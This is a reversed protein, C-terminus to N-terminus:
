LTYVYPLKLLHHLAVRQTGQKSRHMTFNCNHYCYSHHVNSMIYPFERVRGQQGPVECGYFFVGKRRSHGHMDIVMRIKHEQNWKVVEKKFDFVEKHLRRDTRKWKRNLDSGSYSLRYNGTIVGDPNIM